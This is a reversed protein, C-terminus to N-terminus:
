KRPSGRSLREANRQSKSRPLLPSERHARASAGCRPSITPQASPRSHFQRSEGPFLRPVSIRKEGTLSADSFACLADDPYSTLAALVLFLRTHGELLREGQELLLLLYEPSSLPDMSVFCFFSVPYFSFCFRLSFVSTVTQTPDETVNVVTLLSFCPSHLLIVITVTKIIGFRQSCLVPLFM